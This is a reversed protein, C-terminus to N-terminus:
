SVAAPYHVRCKLIATDLHVVIGHLTHEAMYGDASPVPQM